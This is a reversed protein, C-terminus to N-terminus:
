MHINPLRQRQHCSTATSDIMAHETTAVMATSVNEDNNSPAIMIDTTTVIIHDFKITKVLTKSAVDYYNDDGEKSYGLYLTIVKSTTSIDNSVIECERQIAEYAIKQASIHKMIKENYKRYYRTEATFGVAVMFCVGGVGLLFSYLIYLGVNTGTNSFLGQVLISIVVASITITARNMWKVNTVAYKTRLADAEDHQRIWRNISRGWDMYSEPTMVDCLPPPVPRAEEEAGATDNENMTTTEIDSYPHQHQHYDGNVVAVTSLPIARVEHRSSSSSGRWWWVASTTIDNHHHQKVAVIPIRTQTVTM